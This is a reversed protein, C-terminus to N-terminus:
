ADRRNGTVTPTTLVPRIYLGLPHVIPIWVFGGGFVAWCREAAPNSWDVGASRGHQSASGPTSYRRKSRIPWHLHILWGAGTVRGVRYIPM